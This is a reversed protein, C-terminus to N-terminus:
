ERNKLIERKLEEATHSKPNISLAKTVDCFASEYNELMMYCKCRELLVRYDTQVTNIATFDAIAEELRGLARYIVGRMMLAQLDNDDKQLVREVFPLAKEHSEQKIYCDAIRKFVDAYPMKEELALFLRLATEYEGDNCLRVGQSYVLDFCSIGELKCIVFADAVWMVRAVCNNRIGGHIVEAGLTGDKVTNPSNAVYGIVNLENDLVMIAKDDYNNKRDKKLRVTKGERFPKSGSYHRIGAITILVDNDADTLELLKLIVNEDPKEKESSNSVPKGMNRIRTKYFDFIKELMM